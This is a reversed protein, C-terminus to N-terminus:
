KKGGAVKDSETRAAMRQAKGIITTGSAKHVLEFFKNQQDVKGMANKAATEQAELRKQADFHKTEASQKRINAKQAKAKADDGEAAKDEAKKAITTARKLNTATKAEDEQATELKGQELRSINQATDLNYDVKKVAEDAGPEMAKNVAAIGAASIALAQNVSSQIAGM